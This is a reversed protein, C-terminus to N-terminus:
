EDERAFSIHAPEYDEEHLALPVVWLAGDLAGPTRNRVRVPFEVERPTEWDKILAFPITALEVAQAVDFRAVASLTFSIQGLRIRASVILPNGFPASPQTGPLTSGLAYYDEDYLHDVHPLSPLADKTDYEIAQALQGGFQLPMVETHKDTAPRS